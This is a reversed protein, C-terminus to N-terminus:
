INLFIDYHNKIKHQQIMPKSDAFLITSWKDYTVKFPCDHPATKTKHFLYGANKFFTRAKPEITLYGYVAMNVIEAALYTADYRMRMVYRVGAPSMGDPPYFLPIVTYERKNRRQKIIAILYWILTFLSGIIIILLGRNDKFFRSLRDLFTPEQIFGKPWTAVITLGQGPFLTQTTSVVMDTKDISFDHGREGMFGTYAELTIKQTPIEQPLIIHTIAKDIPLRWGNGTVNWYLEDHDKFFGIQWNTRYIIQYIYKGPSLFQYLDGIYVGKGNAYDKISYHAPAGDQTVAEVQFDVHVQNGLRDKYITPFERVIGRRIQNGQANVSITETVILSADKLVQINSEFLLIRESPNAVLTSAALGVLFALFFM